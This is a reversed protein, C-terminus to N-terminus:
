EVVESSENPDWIAGGGDPNEIEIVDELPNWIDLGNEIEQRDQSENWAVITIREGETHEGTYDGDNGSVEYLIDNILLEMNIFADEESLHIKSKYVLSQVTGFSTLETDLSININDFLTSEILDMAYYKYVANLIIYISKSSKEADYINYLSEQLDAPLETFSRNLYNKGIVYEIALNESQSLLADISRFEEEAMSDLKYYNATWDRAKESLLLNMRSTLLAFMGFTVIVVVMFVVLITSVGKNNKM